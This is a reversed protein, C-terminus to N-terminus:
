LSACSRIKQGETQSWAEKLCISAGGMVVFSKSLVQLRIQKGSM